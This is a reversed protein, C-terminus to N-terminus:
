REVTCVAQGLIEPVPGCCKAEAGAPDKAEVTFCIRDPLTITRTAGTTFGNELYFAIPEHEWGRAIAAARRQTEAIARSRTAEALGGELELRRYRDLSRTVALFTMPALIILALVLVKEARNM